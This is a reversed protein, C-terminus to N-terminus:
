SLRMLSEHIFGLLTCHIGILYDLAHRSEIMRFVFSALKEACRERGNERVGENSKGSNECSFTSLDIEARSRTYAVKREEM